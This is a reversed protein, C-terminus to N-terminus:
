AYKQDICFTDIWYEGPRKQRLQALADYLNPFIKIVNGDCVIEKSRVLDGTSQQLGGDDDTDMRLSRIGRKMNAYLCAVTIKGGHM